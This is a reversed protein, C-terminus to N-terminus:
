KKKSRQEDIWNSLLDYKDKSLFKELVMSDEDEDFNTIINLWSKIFRFECINNDYESNFIIPIINGAKTLKYVLGIKIKDNISFVILDKTSTSKGLIDGYMNNKALQKKIKIILKEKYKKRTNKNKFDRLLSMKTDNINRNFLYEDDQFYSYM